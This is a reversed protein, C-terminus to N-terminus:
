LKLLLFHICNLSDDMHFHLAFNYKNHTHIQM